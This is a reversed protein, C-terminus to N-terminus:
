RGRDGGKEGRAEALSERLRAIEERQEQLERFLLRRPKEGEPVWERVMGYRDVVAQWAALEAWASGGEVTRPLTTGAVTISWDDRGLPTAKAVIPLGSGLIATWVREGV